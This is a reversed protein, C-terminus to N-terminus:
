AIILWSAKMNRDSPMSCSTYTYVGYAVALEPICSFVVDCFRKHVSMLWLFCSRHANSAGRNCRSTFIRKAHAGVYAYAFFLLFVCPFICFFLLLFL